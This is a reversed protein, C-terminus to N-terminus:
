GKNLMERAAAVIDDVNPLMYRELVPSFPVPTNKAAVIKVAQNLHEFAKEAAISVIEAAYSSRRCAEQVVLLRGTKRISAMMTEEDFPVITRPDIIELDIGDKKLIEAAEKAFEVMYSTAVVTIDKGQKVINAKGFPIDYYAEPVEAKIQYTKKHEIFVIPNNEKLATRLLGKADYANSPMVVKLGPIHALLAELSQSHQAAGGQYAGMVTRIVLPTKVTGGFMYHVKAVQNLIQDMAVGIFDGFPIEVITRVGVLSAGLGSGIILSEAIPFDRVRENGFEEWLGKSLGMEGGYPGVDEGFLLMSQDARMEEAICDRVAQMYTTMSMKKRGGFCTKKLM